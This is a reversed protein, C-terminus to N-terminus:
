NWQVYRKMGDSEKLKMNLMATSDRQNRLFMRSAGFSHYLRWPETM